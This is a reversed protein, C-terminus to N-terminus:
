MQSLAFIFLASNIGVLHTNSFCGGALGGICLKESSGSAQLLARGPRLGSLSVKPATQPLQKQLRRYGVRDPLAAELKM